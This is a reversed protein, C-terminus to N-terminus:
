ERQGSLDFLFRCWIAKSLNLQFAAMKYDMIHFPNRDIGTKKNRVQLVFM